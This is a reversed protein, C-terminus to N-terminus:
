FTRDCVKLKGTVANAILTSKLENLSAIGKREMIMAMDFDVSVKELHQSIQRQENLNPMLIPIHKIDSMNFHAVTSGTSLNTIYHKAAGGYISFVTFQADMIGSDVKMLVMRQGILVKTNAPLICAEGAPAERTFLIDGTEPVARRTWKQYHKEDTYLADDLRLKGDRVNSTRVILYEGNEFSPATKHETDVIAKMVHKAQKVEWHEPIKGIWEIGSDRMPVNPNLGKTVAQNILIAKQEQLLEILRQKKAIAQDIETTTRDLFNAIKTQEEPEPIPLPLYKFDVYDLNQRLGSGMGYYIKLLDYAHLLYYTFKADLKKSPALCLYASTIIGKDRVLGIRLSTQDNQLDTARVIINGSGVIQYTEFSEPVLGHLKEEPKIIIKGYSLSLVTKVKNGINRVKQPKLYVRGSSLLWHNPIEGLWEVGSDKYSDYRPFAMIM